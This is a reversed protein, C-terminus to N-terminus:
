LSESALFKKTRGRHPSIMNYRIRRHQDRIRGRFNHAGEIKQHFAADFDSFKADHEFIISHSYDVHAYDFPSELSAEILDSLHVISSFITKIHNKRRSSNVLILHFSGFFPWMVVFDADILEFEVRCMM